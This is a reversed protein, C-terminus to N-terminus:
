VNKYFGYIMEDRYDTRCFPCSTKTRFWQNICGLHFVHRCPLKTIEVVETNVNNANTTANNANNTSSSSSTAPTTGFSSSLTYPKIPEDEECYKRWTQQKREYERKRKMQKSYVNFIFYVEEPSCKVSEKLVNLEYNSFEEMSFFEDLCISCTSEEIFESDEIKTANKKNKLFTEMIEQKTVMKLVRKSSITLKLEKFLRKELKHEVNTDILYSRILNLDSLAFPATEMLRAVSAKFVALKPASKFINQMWRDRVLEPKRLEHRRISAEILLVSPHDTKLFNALIPPIDLEKADKEWKLHIETLQAPTLTTRPLPQTLFSGPFGAVLPSVRPPTSSPAGLPVTTNRVTPPIQGPVSSTSGSASSSGSTTTTVSISVLSNRAPPVGPASSNLQPIRPNQLPLNRQVVISHTATTANNAQPLNFQFVTRSVVNVPNPQALVQPIQANATQTPLASPPRGQFVFGSPTQSTSPPLNSTPPAFRPLTFEPQQPPQSLLSPAFFLSQSTQSPINFLSSPQSSLSSSPQQMENRTWSSQISRFGASTKIGSVIEVTPSTTQNGRFNARLVVNTGQLVTVYAKILDETKNHVVPSDFIMSTVNTTNWRAFSESNSTSPLNKAYSPPLSDM